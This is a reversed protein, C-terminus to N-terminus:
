LGAPLYRDVKVHRVARDLAPSLTWLRAAERVCVALVVCEPMTLQTGRGVLFGGLDGAAMWLDVGGQIPPAEAAWTRLQDAHRASRAAVLLEAFVAAPATLTRRRWLDDVLPRLGPAEGRLAGGFITGDAIIV